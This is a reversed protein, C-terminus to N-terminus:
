ASRLEDTMRRPSHTVVVCGPQPQVGDLFGVVM